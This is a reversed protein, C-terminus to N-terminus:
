GRFPVVACSESNVQVLANFHTYPTGGVHPLPIWWTWMSDRNESFYIPVREIRCRLTAISVYRAARIWTLLWPAHARFCEAYAPQTLDPGCYGATPHSVWVVGFKEDTKGRALVRGDEDLFALQAGKLQEFKGPEATDRLTVSATAHRSSHWWGYGLVGAALGTIALIIAAITRM